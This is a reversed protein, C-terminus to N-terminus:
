EVTLILQPPQNSESSSYTAADASTSQVRLAYTGDGAVVSNLDVEYFNGAVVAGLAAQPAGSSRPANNWTVSGEQWATTVSYMQGGRASGDTNHLRLKASTISRGDIGSVTFKMLFHVEPTGDTTLSTASGYNRARTTKRIEADDTPTFTLTDPVGGSPTEVVGSSTAAYGPSVYGSGVTGKAVYDAGPPLGSYIRGVGSEDLDRVLAQGFRNVATAPYYAYTGLPDVAIETPYDSAFSSEFDGGGPENKHWVTGNELFMQPTWDRSTGWGTHSSYTRGDDAGVYSIGETNVRRFVFRDTSRVPDGLMWLHQYGSRGTLGDVRLEKTGGWPQLVDPHSAGSYAGRGNLDDSGRTVLREIRVNEIQVVATPVALNIGETLDSGDAYYGELHITRGNVEGGNDRFTIARRSVATAGHGQWDIRTHGGIWVVNRGGRINTHGTIPQTPAVLRYDKGDDLNLENGHESLRVTVYGAYDPFGPPAWTLPQSAAAASAPLALM